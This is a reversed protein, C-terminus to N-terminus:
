ANIIVGFRNVKITVNFQQSDCSTIFDNGIGIVNFIMDIIKILGMGGEKHTDVESYEKKTFIRNIIESSSQSKSVDCDCSINNTINFIIIDDSQTINLNISLDKLKEFHSHIIANSFLIQLMDYFYVFTEGAFDESIQNDINIEIDAFDDFQQQMSKSLVNLLNDLSYNEIPVSESLYFWNKVDDIKIQINTKCRSIKDSIKSYGNDNLCYKKVESNLKDLLFLIQIKLNELEKERIIWLYENTKRIICNTMMNIFDAVSLSENYSFLISYIEDFDKKSLNYNFLAGEVENEIFVKFTKNTLKLIHENVEDRFSHIIEEVDKSIWDKAFVSKFFNNDVSFLNNEIIVKTITKQFTGHRVRTSLFTDIGQDGFCFETAYTKFMNELIVDRSLAVFNWSQTDFSAAVVSNDGIFEYRNPPTLYYKKTLGIFDEYVNEKITTYNISLKSNDVAKKLKRVEQEKLIAAIHKNYKNKNTPDILLLHKYIEIRYNEADLSNTFITYLCSLTEIDCIENLFYIVLENEFPLNVIDLPVDLKQADMFIRFATERLEKLDNVSHAFILDYITVNDYIKIQNSVYECLDKVDFRYIIYSFKSVCMSFIKLAYDYDKHDLATYYLHYFMFESYLEDKSVFLKKIDDYSYRNSLFCKYSEFFVPPFDVSTIKKYLIADDTSYCKSFISQTNDGLNNKWFCSLPFSLDFWKLIRSYNRIESMYVKFSTVNGGKMINSVCLIIKELINKPEVIKEEKLVYSISKLYLKIFSCDRISMIESSNDQIIKTYEENTFNEILKMCNKTASVENTQLYSNLFVLEEDQTSTSLVNISEKILKGLFASDATKHLISKLALFSDIISVCGSINLIDIYDNSDMENESYAYLFFKAFDSPFFNAIRQLKKYYQNTNCNEDMFHAYLGAFGKIDDSICITDLYDNLNYKKLGALMFRSKLSWFSYCINNEIFNLIKEAKDYEGKLIYLDFLNKQEVFLSMEKSFYSVTTTRWYLAKYLNVSEGTPELAFLSDYSNPFFNKRTIEYNGSLIKDLVNYYGDGNNLTIFLDLNNHFDGKKTFIDILVKSQKKKM